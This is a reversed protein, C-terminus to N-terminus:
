TTQFFSITKQKKIAKQTGQVIDQLRAEFSEGGKLMKNPSMLSFNM